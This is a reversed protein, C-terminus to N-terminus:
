RGKHELTEYYFSHLFGLEKAQEARPGALRMMLWIARGSRGNGDTFPHLLEYRIHATWPDYAGARIANLLNSLERRIAQGGQPAVYDGVSVNMGSKDRLKHGPAVISVYKELSKISLGTQGIFTDLAEIEADSAPGLGEIRNSEDAFRRLWGEGQVWPDLIKVLRKWKVHKESGDDQYGIVADGDQFIELVKAERTPAYEYAVSDGVAVLNGAGDTFGGASM